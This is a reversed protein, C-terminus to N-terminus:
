DIVDSSGGLLPDHCDLTALTDTDLSVDSWPTNLGAAEPMSLGLQKIKLLSAAGLGGGASPGCFVVPRKPMKRKLVAYATVADELAAPYPHQPTLRYDISISELQQLEAFAVATYLSADGDNLAYGGSHLNFVLPESVASEADTSRVWAAKFTGLNTREILM